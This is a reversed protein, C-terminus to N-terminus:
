SQNQQNARSQMYLSHFDVPDLMLPPFGGDRTVDSIVRRAFPFLVFACDVLLVQEIHEAPIGSFEFVGAYSVDALFLTKQEATARASLHLAMEYINTQLTQVRIDIGVDITPKENSPLLSQPALPNEFSLDKVYQGKLVFGASPANPASESTM